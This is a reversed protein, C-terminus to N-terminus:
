RPRAGAGARARLEEFFGAVAAELGAGGSIGEWREKVLGVLRYCQDIPAIAYQGAMRNVVLAEADPELRDLVPNVACLATWAPPDLESETAGAPSPYLAVVEGTVSSRMVFALGIPIQLSAWLEDPLEFEDLWLTRVGAPRYEDDGSHVSWCTECVCVIRREYLHLLHRHGDALGSPCLECHAGAEEEADPAPQGLDLAVKVTRGSRLLPVPDLQLGAGDASRGARPLDFARGCAACTLTGGLLAAGDLREGCGGCRNRYALLTGAVNAVVLGSTVTTLAGRELGAVGDLAVWDPSGAPPRAPPPAVAGEVDIGDLDPAAERLAREVAAELTAASAACGDCSGRLRLRAVREEIGLLEIDGGHSALYPRVSDLAAAVREQLPVPYLDHILLLSAVVGDGVLRERAAAASLGEEGLVAFIRELGEGYLQVIASALRDACDRAAADEIRELEGTLQQVHEVLAAEDRERGDVVAM